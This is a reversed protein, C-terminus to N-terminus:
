RRIIHVRAQRGPKLGLRVIAEGVPVDELWVHERENLAALAGVQQMVRALHAVEECSGELPEVGRETAFTVAIGDATQHADLLELSM